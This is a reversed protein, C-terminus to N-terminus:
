REGQPDLFELNPNSHLHIERLNPLDWFAGRDVLALEPCKDIWIEEVSSHVFDGTQIQALPNGGIDLM